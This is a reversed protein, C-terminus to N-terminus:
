GVLVKNHVLSTEFAVAFVGCEGPGQTKVQSTFITTGHVLQLILGCIGRNITKANLSDYVILLVQLPDGIQDAVKITGKGKGENVNVIAM